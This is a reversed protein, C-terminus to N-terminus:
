SLNARSHLHGKPLHKTSLCATQRLVSSTRRMLWFSVCCRRQGLGRHRARRHANIWVGELVYAHFVPPSMLTETSWAGDQAGLVKEYDSTPQAIHLIGTGTWTQRGTTNLFRNATITAGFVIGDTRTTCHFTKVSGGGTFPTTAKQGRSVLRVEAKPAEPRPRRASIEHKGRM